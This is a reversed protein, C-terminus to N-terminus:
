ARLPAPEPNDRQLRKIDRRIPEALHQCGVAFATACKAETLGAKRLAEKRLEVRLAYHKIFIQPEATMQALADRVVADSLPPPADSM